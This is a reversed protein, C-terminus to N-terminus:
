AGGPRGQIASSRDGRGARRRRAGAGAGGRGAPEFGGARDGGSVGSRAGGRDARGHQLRARQDSDRPRARRVGALRGAPRDAGRAAGSGAAIHGIRAVSEGAIGCCSRRRTRSRRGGGGHRDRLQVGAADRGRGDRRDAGALAFVPPVSWYPELVAVTDEPLVRPLNGPLGGGTIHAAAKLLGARHLALLAPVYIRTPTMLAQGLSVEPDFPAPASWPLGSVEVVRRVLSFANSHVGSSALGLVADGRGRRAAASRGREVAGVAFGALDYDGERYLGPMEATEGGVLACGAENCGSAIGAIVERAQRPDLKGTAFYDLFFLPEAGQVVLDNVCMAVLDIGVTDHIGTEIAIKLKTGVGDTGSVLVPDVFGAAKLDFLAGFGGLGGMVGPRATARALPKIAEVLADGAEIDM